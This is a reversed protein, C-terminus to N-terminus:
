QNGRSQQELEAVRQQLRANEGLLEAATPAGGVTTGPAFDGLDAAPASPREPAHTLARALQKRILAASEGGIRELESYAKRLVDVVDHLEIELEDSIDSDAM